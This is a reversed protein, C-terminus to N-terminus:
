RWRWAWHWTDRPAAFVEMVLLPAGQRMFVSRRAPPSRQTKTKAIVQSVGQGSPRAGAHVHQWSKGVQHQLPGGPKCRHYQLPQRDIGTRRFLVDALPRTGLGRVARWAGLSGAHPTVSRAFVRAVGDVRLVVERAYGTRPGTVGLARAEDPTLPQRGQRVVQVSFVQGTAALRASLSGTAQLWRRLPGREFNRQTWAM